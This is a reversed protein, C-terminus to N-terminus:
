VCVCVCTWLLYLRKYSIIVPMSKRSVRSSWGDFKKGDPVKVKQKNKKEREMEDKNLIGDYVTFINIHLYTICYCLRALISAPHHKFQLVAAVAPSASEDRTTAIINLDRDLAIVLGPYFLCREDDDNYRTYLHAAM